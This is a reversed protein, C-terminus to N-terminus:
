IYAETWAVVGTGGTFTVVNVGPELKLRGCVAPVPAVSNGKRYWAEGSYSNTYIFSNEPAGAYSYLDSPRVSNRVEIVTDRTCIMQVEPEANGGVYIRQPGDVTWVKARAYEWQNLDFRGTFPYARGDARLDRPWFKARDCCSPLRCPIDVDWRNRDEAWMQEIEPGTMPETVESFQVPPGGYRWREWTIRRLPEDLELEFDVSQLETRYNAIGLATEPLKTIRGMAWAYTPCKRRLGSYCRAFCEDDPCDNCDNELVPDSDWCTAFSMREDCCECDFVPLWQKPECGILPSGFLMPVRTQGGYRKLLEFDSIGENGVIRGSGCGLCEAWYRGGHSVSIREIPARRGDYYDFFGANHLPTRAVRYEARIVTESDAQPARAAGVQLLRWSRLAPQIRTM